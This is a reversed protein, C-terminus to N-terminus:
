PVRALFEEVSNVEGYSFGPDTADVPGAAAALAYLNWNGSTETIQKKSVLDYRTGSWSFSLEAGSVLGAKQFVYGARPSLSLLFRGRGPLSLWIMRSHLSRDAVTAAAPVDRGNLRLSPVFVHLLVDSVDFDRPESKSVVYAPEFEVEIYDVVKQGTASNKLVDVGIVQGSRFAGNPFEPPALERYEVLNGIHIPSPAAHYDKPLEDARLSLPKFRLLASGTGGLPEVEVDYGWYTQAARDVYFRHFIDPKGDKADTHMVDTAGQISIQECCPLPPELVYSASFKWGDRCSTGAGGLIGRQGSALGALLGALLWVVLREKRNSM